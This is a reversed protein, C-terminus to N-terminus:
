HRLKGPIVALAVRINDITDVAKLMQSINTRNISAKISNPEKLLLKGYCICINNYIVPM